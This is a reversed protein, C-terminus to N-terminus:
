KIPMLSQLFSDSSALKQYRWSKALLFFLYIFVFFCHNCDFAAMKCGIMNIFTFLLFYYFQLVFTICIYCLHLVIEQWDHGYNLGNWLWPNPSFGDSFHKNVNWFNGFVSVFFRWFCISFTKEQMEHSAASFICSEAIIDASILKKVLLFLQVQPRWGRKLSKLRFVARIKAPWDNSKLRGWVWIQSSYLCGLNRLEM